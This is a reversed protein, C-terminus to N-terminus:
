RLLLRIGTSTNVDGGKVLDVLQEAPNETVEDVHVGEETYVDTHSIGGIVRLQVTREGEENEGMREVQITCDGGTYDIEFRAHGYAITYNWATDQYDQSVASGISTEQGVAEEMQSWSAIFKGNAYLGESEVAEAPLGLLIKGGLLMVKGLTTCIKNKPFNDM